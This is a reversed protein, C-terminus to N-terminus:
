KGGGPSRGWGPILGEDGIDGANCSSEKGASGSPFDMTHQLFKRLTEGAPLCHLWVKFEKRKAEGEGDM